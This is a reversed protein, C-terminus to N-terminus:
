PEGKGAEVVEVGDVRRGRRMSKKSGHEDDVVNISGTPAGNM